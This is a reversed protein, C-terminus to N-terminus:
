SSAEVKLGVVTSAALLGVRLHEAFVALCGDVRGALQKALGARASSILTLRDPVLPAAPRILPTGPKCLLGRDSKETQPLTGDPESGVSSGEEFEV